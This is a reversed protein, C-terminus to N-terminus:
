WEENLIESGQTWWRVWVLSPLSLPPFPLSYVEPIM